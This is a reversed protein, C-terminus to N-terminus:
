QGRWVKQVGLTGWGMKARSGWVRGLGFLRLGRLVGWGVLTGSGEM